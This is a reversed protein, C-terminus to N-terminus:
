QSIPNISQISENTRENTRENARENMSRGTFRDSLWDTLWDISQNSPRDTSRVTWRDTLRDTSRHSLRDIEDTLGVYLEMKWRDISRDILQNILKVSDNISQSFLLRIASVVSLLDVGGVVNMLSSCSSSSATSELWWRHRARCNRRKLYVASSVLM